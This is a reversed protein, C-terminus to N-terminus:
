AGVFWTLSNKWKGTILLISHTYSTQFKEQTIYRLDV